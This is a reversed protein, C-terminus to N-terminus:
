PIHLLPEGRAEEPSVDQAGRKNASAHTLAIALTEVRL